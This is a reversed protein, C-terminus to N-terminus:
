RAGAAARMAALREMLIEIEPRRGEARALRDEARDVSRQARRYSAETIDARRPADPGLGGLARALKEAREALRAQRTALERRAEEITPTEKKM